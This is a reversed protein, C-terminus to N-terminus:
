RIKVGPGNNKQAFLSLQVIVVNPRTERLFNRGRLLPISMTQFFDGDVPNPIPRDGSQGQMTVTMPHSNLGNGLLPMQSLAVSQVGPPSALCAAEQARGSLRAPQHRRTATVIGTRARYRFVQQYGFFRSRHLACSHAPGAFGLLRLLVILLVTAPGTLQAGILIQRALTGANSPQGRLRGPAPALGFLV